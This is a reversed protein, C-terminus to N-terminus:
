CFLNTDRAAAVLWNIVGPLSLGILTLTLGLAVSHFRTMTITRGLVTATASGHRIAFIAMMVGAILFGLEGLNAVVNLMAELNALNNVRVTGATNVGSIVTADQGQPGITGNTAGQLMPASELSPLTQSGSNMQPAQSSSRQYSVSRNMDRNLSNYQYDSEQELVTAGSVSSVVRYVNALDVAQIRNQQQVLREIESSAWLTSVRHAADNDNVVAFTPRVSQREFYPMRLGTERDTRLGGVIYDHGVSHTAPVAYPELNGPRPATITVGDLDKASINAQLLNRGNRLATTSVDFSLFADPNFALLPQSSELHVDQRCQIALNSSAIRPLLVQARGQRDVGMPATIGIRLQMPKAGPLLPSAKIRIRGPSVQTVLLPDRHRLTIWEYANTVAETSSFAAEQPVGNIWLTARSVAAGKPLVMEMEAEQTQGSDNKLAFTWYYVASLSRPDVIGTIASKTAHMGPIIVSAAAPAQPQSLSTGPLMPLTYVTEQSQPFFSNRLTELAGPAAVLLSVVAVALGCGLALTQATHNRTSGRLARHRNQFWLDLDDDTENYSRNGPRDSGASDSRYLQELEDRVSSYKRDIKPMSGDESANSAVVTGV